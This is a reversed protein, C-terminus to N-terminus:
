SSSTAAISSTRLLMAADKLQGIGPPPMLAAAAPSVPEPPLPTGAQSAAAAAAAAAALPAPSALCTSPVALLTPLPLVSSLQPLMALESALKVAPPPADPAALLPLPLPPAAWGLM